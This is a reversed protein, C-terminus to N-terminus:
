EMRVGLAVGTVVGVLSDAALALLDSTVGMFIRVVVPDDDGGLSERLSTTPPNDAMVIDDLEEVGLGVREKYGM